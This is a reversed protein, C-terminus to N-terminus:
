EKGAIGPVKEGAQFLQCFEKGKGSRFTIPHYL